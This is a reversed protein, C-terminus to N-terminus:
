LKIMKSTIYTGTRRELHQPHSCENRHEYEDLFEGFHEGDRLEHNSAVNKHKMVHILPMNNGLDRQPLAELM